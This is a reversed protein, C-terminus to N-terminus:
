STWAAHAAKYAPRARIREVYAEVRPSPKIWDFRTAYDLLGGFVVDAASFSEGLVWGEQPTMSEVTALGRPLDGWGVSRPDEVQFGGAVVSLLPELTTGPFFLYRYYKGRLPSGLPPALGRDAFKDALYACIAATETVVVDGDVLAPVKGMPNIARFEPTETEGAGFDVVHQEHPVDLEKLMWDSTAGRSLPHFYHKM